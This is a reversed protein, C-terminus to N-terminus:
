AVSMRRSTEVSMGTRKGSVNEHTKVGRSVAGVTGADGGTRHGWQVGPCNSAEECWPFVPTAPEPCVTGIPGSCAASGVPAAGGSLWAAYAPYRVLLVSQVWSTAATAAGSDSPTPQGTVAVLYFSTLASQYSRVVRCSEACANLM